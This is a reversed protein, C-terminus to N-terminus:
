RRGHLCGETHTGDREGCSPCLGPFCTTCCCFDDHRNELERIRNDAMVLACALYWPDREMMLTRYWNDVKADDGDNELWPRAVRDTFDRWDRYTEGLRPAGEPRLPSTRRPSVEEVGEAM